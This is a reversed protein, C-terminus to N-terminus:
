KNNLDSKLDIRYACERLDNAIQDIDVQTARKIAKLCFDPWNMKKEWAARSIDYRDEFSFPLLLPEDVQDFRIGILDHLVDRLPRDHQIAANVTEKTEEGSLRKTVISFALLWQDDENDLRSIQSAHTLRINGEDVQWRIGDPLLFVRHFQSLRKTSLGVEQAIVKYSGFEHYLKDVAEGLESLSRAKDYTLYEKATEKDM